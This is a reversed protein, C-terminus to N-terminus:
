MNGSVSVVMFSNVRIVTGSALLARIGSFGNTLATDIRTLMWDAPEAQNSPWAKGFLYSGQARFRLSYTTGGVAHFAQSALVATKGRYDRLIQLHDGDILLKYWNNADTWRLIAGLNVGSAATFHDVSGSIVVEASNIPVNLTAQVAENSFSGTIQGAQSVISFARNTNAQGSWVRGDSANGWFAQDPRQFSDRGMLVEGDPLPTVQSSPESFHTATAVPSSQALAGPSPILTAAIAPKFFAAVLGGLLCCIVLTLSVGRTNM